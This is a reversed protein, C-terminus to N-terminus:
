RDAAAAPAEEMWDAEVLDSPPLFSALKDLFEAKGLSGAHQEILEGNPQFFLITPLQSINYLSKLSLADFEKEEMKLSLYHEEIYSTVEPDALVTQEMIRCPLCWNATFRIFFPKDLAAAESQLRQFSEVEFARSQSSVLKEDEEELEEGSALLEKRIWDYQELDPRATLAYTVSVSSSLIPWNRKPLDPLPGFSALAIATSPTM